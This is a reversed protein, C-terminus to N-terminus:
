CNAQWRVGADSSCEFGYVGPASPNGIGAFMRGDPLSVFASVDSGTPIGQPQFVDISTDPQWRGLMTARGSAFVLTVPSSAGGGQGFVVWDLTTGVPMPQAVFTSGGDTSALLRLINSVMVTHDTAYAPSITLHYPSQYPFSSKEVCSGASQCQLLASSEHNPAGLDAVEATMLVGGGPTAAVADPTGVVQPPLSPGPSILDTSADYIVPPNSAIFVKLPGTGTQLIATPGAPAVIRFTSGGDDSRQLGASSAAFVLDDLAFNPSLLIPGGAYTGPTGAEATWTTGGDRSESLVWCGVPRNCGTLRLGSAFITHDSDYSPSPTVYVYSVDQAKAGAGPNVVSQVVADPTSGSAADQGSRASPSLESGSSRAQAGIKSAGRPATDMLPRDTAGMIAVASKGAFVPSLTAQSMLLGTVASTAILGAPEIASLRAVAAGINAALNNSAAVARRGLRGLGRGGPIALVAAVAVKRARQRARTLAVAAANASMGLRRAMENGSLGSVHYILLLRERTSLEAWVRSLVSRAIAQAEPSAHQVGEAPVGDCESYRARRRREDHCINRAVVTLYAAPDGSLEALRPAARLFTEQVADEADAPNRLRSLCLRYVGAGYQRYAEEATRIADAVGATPPAPRESGQAERAGERGACARKNVSM